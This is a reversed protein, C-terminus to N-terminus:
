FYLERTKKKEKKPDLVPSVCVVGDCVHLHTMTLNRNSFPLTAKHTSVDM